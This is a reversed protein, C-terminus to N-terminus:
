DRVTCSTRIGEERMDADGLVLPLLDVGAPQVGEKRQLGGHQEPNVQPIVIRGAGPLLAIDVM